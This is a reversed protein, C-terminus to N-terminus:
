VTNSLFSKLLRWIEEMLAKVELMDSGYVSKTENVMKAIQNINNGIRALQENMKRIDQYDVRYVFGTLILARLFASRSRMGSREFKRNLIYLEEDSLYLLLAHKRKRNAM